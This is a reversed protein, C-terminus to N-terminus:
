AERCVEQYIGLIKQAAKDWTFEAARLQGKQRCNEKLDRDTALQGIAHAIEDVSLPDVTLGADGVTEPLSSANSAVVPVGAAMAELVPLGAGEFLSPYVFIDAGQYLAPLDDDDVFGTLIIDTGAAKRILAVTEATKYDARGAFVLQHPLRLESKLRSFACALSVLNKRPNLRSVSLIYPPRIKYKALTKQIRSPDLSEAFRPSVGCPIVEIKEPALGYRTAIDTKSFQSGTIVKAARQATRRIFLRSRFVFFRSFTKPLHLFGLDHITAVLKGRHRPPAIFQVHLIDLAERETARGLFLPIRILPNEVRLSRLRVKADRRINRYFRHNRDIIYLIYDNEYDQALLAEVLGRIYTCNGSGDREAAHVDIGIRM